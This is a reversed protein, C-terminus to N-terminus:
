KSLSRLKELARQFDAPPPAVFDLTENTIPHVFGLRGAHLAQRNLTDGVERVLLNQPTRGYLQDGIIPFGHESCHVRIQHTRGTELTVRLLSAFAGRSKKPSARSSSPFRELVRFHTVARRGRTVRTTFRRKDTQHRGHMTDYTGSEPPAGVVLALYERVVDHKSLMEVLARHTVETKAVVMVGSTDKDLRQVLGPRLDAGSVSEVSTHHLVANVLTGSAHGAAPHVVLGAPKAIVLLHPDEFLIELPIDEPAISLPERVTPVVQLSAGARVRSSANAVKGDIRVDGAEIWRQVAARSTDCLRAVVKDVREGDDAESAVFHRSSVM